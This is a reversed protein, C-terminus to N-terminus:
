ESDGDPQTTRLTEATGHDLIRNVTADLKQAAAVPDAAKIKVKIEDQDRTGSGRKIKTTLTIKDASENVHHTEDSMAM